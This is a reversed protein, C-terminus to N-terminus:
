PTPKDVPIELYGVVQDRLVRTVVLELPASNNSLVFVVVEDVARNKLEICQDDLYVCVTYRQNKPDSSRLLLSVPGVPERNAGHRLEFQVATRRTQALLRNLDERTRFLESQQSGVVGVVDALRDTTAQWAEHNVAAAEVAAQVAAANAASPAISSPPAPVASGLSRQPQLVSASSIKYGTRKPAQPEPVPSAPIKPSIAPEAVTIKRHKELQDIRKGMDALQQQIQEIGKSDAQAAGGSYGSFFKYAILGIAGVLVVFGLLVLLHNLRRPTQDAVNPVFVQRDFEIGPMKTGRAGTLDIQIEVFLQVRRTVPLWRSPLNGRKM